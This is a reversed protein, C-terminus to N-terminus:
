SSPSIEAAPLTFYFTGGTGSVREYGSRGGQAEVLRHVIPLGLGRPANLDSLRDIPYFLHSELKEPVGPGSDRLWFRHGDPLKEWGLEIRANPGAHQVSNTLLNSWIIDFWAPVGEVVPWEPPKTVTVGAKLMRSELRQLAGWVIEEMIVSQRPPPNTTAKLIVNIREFMKVVEDVSDAITRALMSRPSDASEDVDLMAESTTSICNLPSRLDHGLRRSVTRLDGRLRANATHLAHLRASTVYALQLMPETWDDASVHVLHSEADPAGPVCAVVAWRPGGRADLAAVARDTDGAAPALLVLLEPASAAPNKLLESLEDTRTVLAEPFTQRAAESAMTAADGAPGIIRVSSVPLSM